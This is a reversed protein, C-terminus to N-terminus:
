DDFVEPYRTDMVMRFVECREYHCCCFTEMQIRWDSKRDYRLTITNREMLGECFIMTKGDDKRFFPCRVYRQIYSGSSM